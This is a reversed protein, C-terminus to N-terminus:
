RVLEIEFVGDDRAKRLSPYFGLFIIQASVILRINKLGYKLAQIFVCSSNRVGDLEGFENCILTCTEAETDREGV